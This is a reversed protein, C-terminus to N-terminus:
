TQPRVKMETFKLSERMGRFTKWVVGKGYETSGYEGNLNSEGCANYWWAGHFRVACSGDALNDNDNDYTSFKMLNLDLGATTSIMSDGADGSYGSIVPWYNNAEDSTGFWNYEAYAKTGDNAEMDVRLSHRPPGVSIRHIKDNGLWFEGTMNNSPFGNKYDDWGRYFDVSGDQRRQIVTWGGGDTEMDCYVLFGPEPGSPYIMYIGSSLAPDMNHIDYCDTPLNPDCAILFFPIRLLRFRLDLRLSYVGTGCDTPFIAQLTVSARMEIYRAMFVALFRQSYSSALLDGLDYEAPLEDGAEPDFSEDLLITTEMDDDSERYALAWRDKFGTVRDTVSGEMTSLATGDQEGLDMDYVARFAEIDLEAAVDDPLSSQFDNMAATMLGPKFEEFPPIDGIGDAPCVPLPQIAIPPFAILWWFHLWYWKYIIIRKIVLRLRFEWYCYPEGRWTCTIDFCIVPIVIVELCEIRVCAVLLLPMRVLSFHETLQIHAIFDCGDPIFARINVTLKMAAYRQKLLALKDKFENSFAPDTFDPEEPLVGTKPDFDNLMIAIEYGTESDIYELVWVDKIAKVTDTLDGSMDALSKGEQNGLQKFQELTEDFRVDSAFQDSRYEMMAEYMAEFSFVKNEPITALVPLGCGDDDTMPPKPLIPCPTIETPPETTTPPPTIDPYRCCCIMDYPCPCDEISKWYGNCGLNNQDTAPDLCEGGCDVRCSKREPCCYQGEPCQCELAMEPTICGDRFEDTCTGGCYQECQTPEQVKCIYKNVDIPYPDLCDLYTTPHVWYPCNEGNELVDELTECDDFTVLEGDLYDCEYKAQDFGVKETSFYYCCGDIAVFDAPCLSDQTLAPVLLFLLFLFCRGEM